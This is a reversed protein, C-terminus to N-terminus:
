SLTGYIPKALCATKRIFNHSRETLFTCFSDGVTEGFFLAVEQDHTVTLGKLDSIM